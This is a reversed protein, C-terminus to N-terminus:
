YASRGPTKLKSQVVKPLRGGYSFREVASEGNIQTNSLLGYLRYSIRLSISGPHTRNQNCDSSAHQQRGLSGTCLGDREVAHFNALRLNEHSCGIAAVFM